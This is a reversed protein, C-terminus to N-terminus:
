ILSSALHSWLCLAQRVPSFSELTRRQGGRTCRVGGWVYMECVLLLEKFFHYEDFLVYFGASSAVMVMNPVIQDIFYVHTSHCTKTPCYLTESHIYILSAEFEYLKRISPYFAYVVMGLGQCMKIVCMISSADSCLSCGLDEAATGQCFHPHHTQRSLTPKISLSAKIMPNSNDKLANHDQHHYTDVRNSTEM